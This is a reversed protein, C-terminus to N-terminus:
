DVRIKLAKPIRSSSSTSRSGERRASSSPSSSHNNVGRWWRERGRAEKRAGSASPPRWSSRECRWVIRSFDEVEERGALGERAEVIEFKRAVEGERVEVGESVVVM